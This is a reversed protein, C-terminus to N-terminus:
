KALGPGAIVRKYDESNALENKKYKLPVVVKGARDILDWKGGVVNKHEGEAASFCANCVIAVGDRFPFAFDYEPKIVVNLMKDIFGYKIKQFLEQLVRLLIIQVM